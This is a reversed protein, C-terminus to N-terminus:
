KFESVRFKYQTNRKLEVCLTNPASGNYVPVFGYGTGPDERQLCYEDDTDRSKWELRLYTVGAEVVYPPNPQSPPSGATMATTVGSYRSCFLYVIEIYVETSEGELVKL